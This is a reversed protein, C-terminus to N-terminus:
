YMVAGASVNLDQGTIREGRRSCLFLVTGAVDEPRVFERMPSDEVFEAAAEEYPIGRSEAQARIVSEIRPGEVNGPCIANVTVGHPALEVALTRTFGVVAMKSSTYPTRNALPRKGSISSINVVRGAESERLHPIAAKTAAFQGGVNVRLTRLFEEYDVSECPATPGAVGVNNVLVDLGGFEEVARDVFAEMAAPDGADGRVTVVRGPADALEAATEALADGDVDNVLVDLGAGSLQAAIERGIGRGAATVAARDGDITLDGRPM